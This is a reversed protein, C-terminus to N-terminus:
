MGAFKISEGCGCAETVNPNNFRFGSDLLGAAYDIEDLLHQQINTAAHADIM